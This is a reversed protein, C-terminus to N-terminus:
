LLKAYCYSVGFAETNQWAKFLEDDFREFTSAIEGRVVIVGDADYLTQNVPEDEPDLMDKRETGMVTNGSPDVIGENAIGGRLLVSPEDVLADAEDAFRIDPYHTQALDVLKIANDLANRWLPAPMFLKAAPIADFQSAVLHLMIEIRQKPTKACEALSEILM